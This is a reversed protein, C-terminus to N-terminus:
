ARSRPPRLLTDSVPEQSFALTSITLVPREVLPLSPAGVGLAAGCCGMGCCSSSAGCCHCGEGLGCGLPAGIFKLETVAGSWEGGLRSLCEGTGRAEGRAAEESTGSPVSPRDRTLDVASGVRGASHGHARAARDIQHLGHAMAPASVTVLALGLFLWGLVAILRQGLM